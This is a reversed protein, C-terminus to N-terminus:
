QWGFDALADELIGGLLLKEMDAVVHEVEDYTFGKRWGLDWAGGSVAVNCQLDREVLAFLTDASLTATLDKYSRLTEIGCCIEAVLKDLSIHVQSRIPKKPLTDVVSLTIQLKKSELLESACDLLLKTEPTENHSSDPKLEVPQWSYIDFLGEAHSLFSTNSLLLNKTANAEPKSKPAVCHQDCEKCESSSESHITPVTSVCSLSEAESHDDIILTQSVDSVEELHLTESVEDENETKDTEKKSKLDIQAKNDGLNEVIAVSSKREPKDTKKMYKNNRSNRSVAAHNLTLNSTTSKQQTVQKQSINPVTEQKRLKVSTMKELGHPKVAERFKVNKMEEKRTKPAIKQIKDVRKEIVEKKEQGRPKAPNITKNSSLKGMIRIGSDNSSTLQKSGGERTSKTVETKEARLNKKVAVNPAGKPQGTPETTFEKRKWNTPMDKPNVSNEECPYTRSHLAYQPKMIVIPECYQDVENEFDSVVPQKSENFPSSKLLGKFQMAGIIEELTRQKTDMNEVVIPPKKAKPLDIEFAPRRQNSLRDKEMQKNPQSPIIEELGMLKAILNPAKPKLPQVKPLSSGFSSFEHSQFVSSQSSSTSPLDPSSLLQRRDFCRKEYSSQSSSTSPLDPSFDLERSGFSAKEAGSNPPMPLLKQRAFSDRIVERLEDYCDWSSAGDISHRPRHFEELKYKQDGVVRESKTREVGKGSREKTPKNMKAMFGSAEQLKELMELSEQLDLAGKLLDKAVEKSKRDLGGGKSWSDIVRTLKQAGRSVEMLQVSCSANLEDACGQYVREEREKKSASVSMGGERVARKVLKDDDVMKPLETKSKRIRNCEVVGRPDDCTLFSRYLVSRPRDQPM